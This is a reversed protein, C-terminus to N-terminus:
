SSTPRASVPVLRWYLRAGLALIALAGLAVPGFLVLQVLTAAAVGLAGDIGFQMVALMFAYQYTGIFGPASPLFTSLSAAGLVVLALGPPVAVGLSHLVSVLAATELGAIALTAAGAVAFASKGMVQVAPGIMGLHRRAFRWRRVWPQWTLWVLVVLTACLVCFLATGISSLAILLRDPPAAALLLGGSLCLVVTVIDLMREIMISSATWARAVAYKRKFTEIRFLEGLRTPLLLNIGHGVVMVRAFTGYSLTTLHGLLMRWRLVRVALALAYLLAAAALWPPDVRGIADIAAQSVAQQLTLWAFVAGIGLGIAVHGIWRPISQRPHPASRATMFTKAAGPPTCHDRRLPRMSKSQLGYVGDALRQFHKLKAKSAAALTPIVATGTRALTPGHRVGKGDVM